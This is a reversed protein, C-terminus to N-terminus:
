VDGIVALVREVPDLLAAAALRIQETMHQLQEIEANAKDISIKIQQVLEPTCFARNRAAVEVLHVVRARTEAIHSNATARFDAELELASVGLARSDDVLERIESRSREESLLVVKRPDRRPSINGEASAAMGVRSQQLTLLRATNESIKKLLLEFLVRQLELQSFVAGFAAGGNGTSLM